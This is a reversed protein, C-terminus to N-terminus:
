PFGAKMRVRWRGSPGGGSNPPCTEPRTKPQNHRLTCGSTACSLRFLFRGPTLGPFCSNNAELRRRRGAKECGEAVTELFLKRDRDGQFVLGGQNGRSTVHYVAGPHEIRLKRAMVVPGYARRSSADPVSIGAKRSQGRKQAM